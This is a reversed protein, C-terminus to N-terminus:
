NPLAKVEGQPTIFFFEKKIETKIVEREVIKEKPAAEKKPAIEFRVQLNYTFQVVPEIIAEHLIFDYNKYPIKNYYLTKNNVRTEDVVVEDRKKPNINDISTNAVSQYSEYRDLPFFVGQRDSVYRSEDDLPVGLKEYLAVRKRLVEIAKTRLTDYIADMDPVYYDVKVLDYIESLAAATIIQDLVKADKFHVHLNKQIEFGAPIETYTKSFRKGDSVQVDYVPVMSLMDSVVDKEKLGLLEVRGLFDAIRQGMLQDAEAADKGVQKMHFIALYSKAVCNYIGNIDFSVQNSQPSAARVIMEQNQHQYRTEANYLINGAVQATSSKPSISVLAFFALFLTHQIKMNIYKPTHYVEVHFPNM